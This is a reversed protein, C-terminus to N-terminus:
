VSVHADKICRAILRIDKQSLTSASPLYLGDRCLRDAVPYKKDKYAHYYSPQMHMPIFFSRTEIGKKALYSRLADKSMGFTHADIVVGYMWYVHRMGKSQKPTTLGSIGELLSNYLAAHTRRKSVLEDFRKVQGYGVAASLNPMRFNYGILTHWFHREKSFAQDRLLTVLKILRPNNTTVMGGEGTSIIKNAYLSFAAIDGLSGARKGRYEAGHAEAADEIVWLGYTRALQRVPEMDVTAGYIHVVMIARTKDTINAEIHSVDMNWTTLDADVLVPKAGCFVIANVSAVMTFTPVIVEDGMGINCALLALHLASTGSNVAAAYKTKSVNKAFAQEFKKVYAGDSSLWTSQMADNVYQTEKHSLDTECVPIRIPTTFVPEPAPLYPLLKGMEKKTLTYQALYKKM